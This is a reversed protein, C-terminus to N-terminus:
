RSGAPSPPASPLRLRSIRNIARVPFLLPWYLWRRHEGLAWAERNPWDGRCFAALIDGAEQFYAAESEHPLRHSVFIRRTQRTMAQAVARRIPPSAQANNVAQAIARWQALADWHHLSRTLLTSGPRKRYVYLPQRVAVIRKAAMAARISWAMDEYRGEPFALGQQEIFDRRLLRMCLALTGTIAKCRDNELDGSLLPPLHVKRRRPTWRTYGFLVLDAADHEAAAVAQALADPELWDDGDLFAVYKGRAVHLGLNRGAGPGLNVPSDLVVLRPDNAHRAIEAATEDTSGNQIVIIEINQLTQNRASQLAQSIYPAVNWAPTILSVVPPPHGAQPSPTSM